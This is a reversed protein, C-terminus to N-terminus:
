KEEKPQLSSFIRSLAAPYLHRADIHYYGSSLGHENCTLAYNDLFTWGKQQATQRLYENWLRPISIYTAFADGTLHNCTEKIPAPVGLFMLRFNRGKTAEEIFGLYGTAVDRVM